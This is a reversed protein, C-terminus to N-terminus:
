ILSLDQSLISGGVLGEIRGFEAITKILLIARLPWKTVLRLDKNGKHGGSIATTNMISNSGDGGGSAAVRSNVVILAELSLSKKACKIGASIILDLYNM